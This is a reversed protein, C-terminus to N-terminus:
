PYWYSCRSSSRKPLRSVTKHMTTGLSGEELPAAAATEVPIQIPIPGFADLRASVRVNMVPHARSGTISVDVVLGNVLGSASEEVTSRAVRAADLPSRGVEIGARLGEHASSIVVNRGYVVLATQVIGLALLLVFAM